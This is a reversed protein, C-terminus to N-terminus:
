TRQAETTPNDNSHRQSSLIEVSEVLMLNLRINAGKVRDFLILWDGKQEVVAGGYHMRNATIVKLETGPFYLPQEPM